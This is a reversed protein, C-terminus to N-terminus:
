EKLAVVSMSELGALYCLRRPLVSGDSCVSPSMENNGDSRRYHM